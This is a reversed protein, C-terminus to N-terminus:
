KMLKDVTIIRFTNSNVTIKINEEQNSIYFNKGIKQYNELATELLVKEILEESEKKSFNTGLKKNIRQYVLETYCHKKLIENKNIIM